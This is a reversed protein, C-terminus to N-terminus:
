AEKMKSIIKLIAGRACKTTTLIKKRSLADVLAQVDQAFIHLQHDNRIDQMHKYSEQLERSWVM